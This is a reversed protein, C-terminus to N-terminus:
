RLQCGWFCSESPRSFHNGVSWGKSTKSKPVNQGGGGGGGQLEAWSEPPQSLSSLHGYTKPKQSSGLCRSFLEPFAAVFQLHALLLMRVVWLFEKRFSGERGITWFFSCCVVGRLFMVYMYFEPSNMKPDNCLHWTLFEPPIWKRTMVYIEHLGCRTLFNCESLRFKTHTISQHPNAM